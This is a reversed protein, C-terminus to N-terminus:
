APTLQWTVTEPSPIDLELECAASGVTFTGSVPTTAGACELTASLPGDASLTWHRPGALPVVVSTTTADLEGAVPGSSAGDGVAGAGNSATATSSAAGSTGGARGSSTPSTRSTTATTTSTPLALPLTTTTTTTTFTTATKAHTHRTSGIARRPHHTSLRTPRTAALTTSTAVPPSPTARSSFGVTLVLVILLLPSSWLVWTSATVPRRRPTM